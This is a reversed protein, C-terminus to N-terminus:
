NVNELLKWIESVRFVLWCLDVVTKNQLDRSMRREWLRGARNCDDVSRTIHRNWNGNAPPIRLFSRTHFKNLYERVEVDHM